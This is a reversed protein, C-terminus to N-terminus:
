EDAADSTYLLCVYRLWTRTFVLCFQCCLSKMHRVRESWIQDPTVKQGKLENQGSACIWGCCMFFWNLCVIMMQNELSFFKFPGFVPNNKGYETQDKGKVKQGWFSTLYWKDVLELVGVSYMQDFQWLCNILFQTWVNEPPVCLCAVLSFVYYSLIQAYHRLRIFVATMRPESWLICHTYNFNTM